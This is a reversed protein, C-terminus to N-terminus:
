IIISRQYNTTGLRFAHMSLESYMMELLGIIEATCLRSEAPSLMARLEVGRGVEGGANQRICVDVASEVGGGRGQM